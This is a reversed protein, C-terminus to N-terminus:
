QSGSTSSSGTGSGTNAGLKLSNLLTGIDFKTGFFIRIDDPTVYGHDLRAAGISHQGINANLGIYFPIATAPIPIRILGEMDLRYLDKRSDTYDTSVGGYDAACSSGSLLPIGNKKPHCIFSPLNSYRGMTIDLYSDIIPARAKSASLKMQGVRGGFSYFAYASQFNLTETSGDPAIANTSQSGTLTNFGVKGVPALFIASPHHGDDHGLIWPLYGGTNVQVTKQTTLFTQQSSTSTTSAADRTPLSTPITM